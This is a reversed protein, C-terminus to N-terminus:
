GGPLVARVRAMVNSWDGISTQRFLRSAPYWPSVERDLMWRWDPQFPLLVFTPRGLAGAVHAVATDVSIVLDALALVAVTDAFDNLEPGLDLIRPDRTLADADDDRLERQVSIFGLGPVSMLPGLQPLSLSRNRDNPHAASGSWAFAIRPTRLAELRPRWKALASDSARLYPIEAPINSTDTKLALPLSGLPCHADYPPLPEGRGIVAAVGVFGSLLPKLAPQVELVVRAGMQALQPVFRVFQV